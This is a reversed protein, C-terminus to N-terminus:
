HFKYEKNHEDFDADTLGVNTKINTYTYEELLQPKGGETAPWDYAEYRVPVNLEKDVYVLAKNFLFNKRPVPHVVQIGLCPRNAIKADNFFKVECEGFKADNNAVEILRKTLNNFGIETVPYRQGSMALDGNPDLYVTIIGKVLGVDHAILKGNNRGDVYIAERGKIKNPTLFYLYVSFPNHRVKLFMAERDKLEGNILERKHMTCTYDKINASINDKASAAIKLAPILPHEAQGANADQREKNDSVNNNAVKNDTPQQAVRFVPERLQERNPRASRPQREAGLERDLSLGQAWVGGAILCGCAALLVSWRGVRPRYTM